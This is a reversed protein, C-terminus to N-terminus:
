KIQRANQQISYKYYETIGEKPQNYRKATNKRKMTRLNVIHMKIKNSDVKLNYKVVASLEIASPLLVLYHTWSKQSRTASKLTINSASNRISGTQPGLFVVNGEMSQFYNGFGLYNDLNM